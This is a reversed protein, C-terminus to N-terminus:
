KSIEDIISKGEKIIEVLRLTEDDLEENCYDVDECDLEIGYDHLLLAIEEWKETLDRYLSYSDTNKM